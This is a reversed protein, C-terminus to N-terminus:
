SVKVMKTCSRTLVTLLIDYRDKGMHGWNTDAGIHGTVWDYPKDPKGQGGGAWPLGDGLM